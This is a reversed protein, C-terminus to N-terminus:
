TGSGPESNENLAELKKLKKELAAIRTLASLSFIFAISGLSMGMIGFSEM